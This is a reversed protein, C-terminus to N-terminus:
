DDMISNARHSDLKATLKERLLRARASDVFEKLEVIKTGDDSIQLFLVCENEWSGLGNLQGIMKCYAVVVNRESDEYMVQPVMAFEKFISTVGSAHASFAKRDRKAMELSSPLVQHTFEPALHRLLADASLERYSDLYKYAAKLRNSRSVNPRSPEAGLTWQRLIILAIGGLASAAAITIIKRSDSVNQM